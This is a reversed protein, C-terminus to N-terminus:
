FGATFKRSSNSSTSGCTLSCVSRTSRCTASRSRISCHSCRARRGEHESTDLEMAYDNYVLVAKGDAERATHFAIDFFDEGLQSLFQSGRVGGPRGERPNLAENVVNWSWVQGALRRCMHTIHDVVLKRAQARDTAAEFFKPTSLHWLLHAGTIKMQHAQCFEITPQWRLDYEGPAKSVTAWSLIPAILKCHRTLLDGYGPVTRSVEVEPTASYLFGRKAASKLYAPFRRKSPRKLM